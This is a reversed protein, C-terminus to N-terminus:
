TVILREQGHERSRLSVSLLIIVLNPWTALPRARAAASASPAEAGASAAGAMLEPATTILTV